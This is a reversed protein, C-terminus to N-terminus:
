HNYYPFMLWFHFFVPIEIFVRVLKFYEVIIYRGTFFKHKLGGQDVAAEGYFEAYINQGIQRQYRPSEMKDCFDKFVYNRQVRLKFTGEGIHCSSSVLEKIKAVLSEQTYNSKTKSFVIEPIDNDTDEENMDDLEFFTSEACHGTHNEVANGPYRKNCIPCILGNTMFSHSASDDLVIVEDDALNQSGSSSSYSSSPSKDRIIYGENKFFSRQDIINITLNSETVESMTLINREIATSSRKYHLHFFEPKASLSGMWYYTQCCKEDSCFFQQKKGLRTHLVSVLM